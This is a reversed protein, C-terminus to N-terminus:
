QGGGSSPVPSVRPQDRLRKWEDNLRDTVTEPGVLWGSGVSQTTFMADHIIPLVADFAEEIAERREAARAHRQADVFTRAIRSYLAKCESCPETQHNWQCCFPPGGEGDTTMHKTCGSFEDEAAMVSFVYGSVDLPALWTTTEAPKASLPGLYRECRACYGGVIDRHVCTFTTPAPWGTTTDAPQAAAVDNTDVQEAMVSDHISHEYFMPTPTEAPRPMNEKTPTPKTWDPLAAIRAAEERMKQPDNTPTPATEPPQAELIDDLRDVIENVFMEGAAIEERLTRIQTDSVSRSPTM